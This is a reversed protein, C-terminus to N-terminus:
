TTEEDNKIWYNYIGQCWSYTYFVTLAFLGWQDNTYTEYFWFPQGLLGLIYGWRSWTEKRTTFWIAGGSTLAIIIQSIM